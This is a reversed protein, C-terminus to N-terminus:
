AHRWAAIEDKTQQTTGVHEHEYGFRLRCGEVGCDFGERETEDGNVAKKSSAKSRAKQLTQRESTLVSCKALWPLFRAEWLVELETALAKPDLAISDVREGRRFAALSPVSPLRLHQLADDDRTAMVVYFKTGLFRQAVSSMEGRMARLFGPSESVGSDVVLTVRPVDPENQLEQVLQPLAADLVVGYGEAANEAAKHLQQELQKRRAALMAGMGFEDDSDDFDDSDSDSVRPLPVQPAVVSPQPTTASGAIPPQLLQQRMRVAGSTRDHATLVAKLKMAKKYEHEDRECCSALTPDFALDLEDFDDQLDDTHAHDHTHGEHGCVAHNAATAM